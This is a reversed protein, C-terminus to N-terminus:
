YVEGNEIFKRLIVMNVIIKWIRLLVKQGVDMTYRINLVIDRVM